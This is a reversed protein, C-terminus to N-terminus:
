STTEPEPDTPYARIDLAPLGPAADARSDVWLFYPNHLGYANASMREIEVGLAQAWPTLRTLAQATTLGHLHAQPGHDWHWPLLDGIEAELLEIWRLNGVDRATQETIVEARHAAYVQGATYKGKFVEQSTWGCSCSATYGEVLTYCGSRVPNRSVIKKTHGVLRPWANVHRRVRIRDQAGVDRTMPPPATPNTTRYWTRHPEAGVPSFGGLTWVTLRRTIDTVVMLGDAHDVVDRLEVEEPRIAITAYGCAASCLAVAQTLPAPPAPPVHWPDTETSTM